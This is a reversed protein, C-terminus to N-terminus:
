LFLPPNVHFSLYKNLNGGSGPYFFWNDRYGNQIRFALDDESPVDRKDLGDKFVPGADLQVFYMFSEDGDAKFAM